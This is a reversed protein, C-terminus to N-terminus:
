ERDRKRKKEAGGGGKREGRGRGRRRVLNRPLATSAGSRQLTEGTAVLSSELDRGSGLSLRKLATKLGLVLIVTEMPVTEAIIVFLFGM